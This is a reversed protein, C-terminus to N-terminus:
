RKRNGAERLALERDDGLFVRQRDLALFGGIFVALVLGLHQVAADGRAGELAGELKGIEHQHLVSRKLVAQKM